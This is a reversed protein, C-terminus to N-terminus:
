TSRDAADHQMNGDLRSFEDAGRVFPLRVLAHVTRERRSSRGSLAADQTLLEQTIPTTRALAAEYAQLLTRTQDEIIGNESDGSVLGWGRQARGSPGGWRGRLRPM